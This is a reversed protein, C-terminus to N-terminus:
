SLQLMVPRGTGWTTQYLSSLSISLLIMISMSIEVPM